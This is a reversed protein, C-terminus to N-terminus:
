IEGSRPFLPFLHLTRGLRTGTGHSRIQDATYKFVKSVLQTSHYIGVDPIFSLYTGGDSLQLDTLKLFVRRKKVEPDQEKVSVKGRIIDYVNRNDNHRWHVTLQEEELETHRHSCKLIVSDGEAVQHLSSADILLTLVCIFCCRYFM